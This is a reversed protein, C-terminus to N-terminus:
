VWHWRWGLAEVTGASEGLDWWVRQRRWGLAEVQVWVMGVAGEKQVWRKGLQRMGLAGEEVMECKWTEHGGHGAGIGLCGPFGGFDRM